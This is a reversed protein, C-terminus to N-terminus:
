EYLMGARRLGELLNPSAAWCATEKFAAISCWTRRSVLFRRLDACADEDQDNQSEAAILALWPLEADRGSGFSISAIALRAHNIADAFNGNAVLAIALNADNLMGPEVGLAFQKAAVFNALAEEFHGLQLLVKGLDKYHEGCAPRRDIAGRYLAASARQDGQARLVTAKAVLVWHADPAFLLARDVEKAAHALDSGPDASYGGLVLIARMRAATHLAHVYNPDLELARKAFALRELFKEKSLQWWSGAGAALVLDRKDLNEPRDRMARAVESNRTAQYINVVISQVVLNWTELCDSRDYRRSWIPWADESRYLTAAVILRGDELRADGTLVFHAHEDPKVPGPNSQNGLYTAVIEAPILPAGPNQALSVTTVDRTMRLAIGDQDPDGSSNHFPMVIVSQRRDRPSHAPPCMNITEHRGQAGVAGTTSKAFADLVTPLNAPSLTPAEIRTVPIVIRYGRGVVTQICSAGARGGDLVRRLASIQVTLNAEEVTTGPWVSDMLVQKTALEGHLEVLTTLVDLARSGLGVSEWMGGDRQRTLGGRRDLRFAGFQFVTERLTADMTGGREAIGLIRDGPAIQPRM